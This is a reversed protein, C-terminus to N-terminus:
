HLVLTQLFLIALAFVYLTFNYICHVKTMCQGRILTYPTFHESFVNLSKCCINSSSYICLVMFSYLSLVLLLIFNLLVLSLLIGKDCIAFSSYSDKREAQALLVQSVTQSRTRLMTGDDTKCKKMVREHLPAIM